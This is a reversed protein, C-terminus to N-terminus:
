TEDDTGEPTVDAYEGNPLRKLIRLATKDGYPGALSKRKREAAKLTAAFGFAMVAGSDTMAGITYSTM